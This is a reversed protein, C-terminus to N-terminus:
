LVSRGPLIGPRLSKSVYLAQNARLLKRKLPASKDLVELFTEDFKTCNGNNEIMLVNKLENNFKLSNIRKYDRDQRQRPNRKPIGTKSVTLVLKHCVSLGSCATTTQQFTCINNTLLIDICSPNQM